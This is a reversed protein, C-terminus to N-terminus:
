LGHVVPFVDVSDPKLGTSGGPVTRDAMAALHDVSEWFSISMAKGTRPDEVHYAAKFGQQETMWTRFALMEETDADKKRNYTAIRCVM